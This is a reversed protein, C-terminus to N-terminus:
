LLHDRGAASCLGVNQLGESAITVDGYLHFIRARSTFHCVFSDHIRSKYQKKCIKKRIELKKPRLVVSSFKTTSIRMQHMLIPITNTKSECVTIYECVM